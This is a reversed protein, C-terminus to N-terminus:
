FSEKVLRRLVRLQHPTMDEQQTKSYLLLMYIVNDAGKWYYIVRLGGRKGGGRRRWRLKRIGGSNPIVPGAGPRLLLTWQLERYEDDNLQDTVQDTFLPTEVFRMAMAYATPTPRFLETGYSKAKRLLLRITSFM